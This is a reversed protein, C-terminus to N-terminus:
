ATVEQRLAAGLVSFLHAQTTLDPMQVRESFDFVDTLAFKEVPLYLATRLHETLIHCDEFPAIVLKSVNVFPFQRDFHDLSRQLELAVRDVANALRGEELEILRAHCLEGAFTFTLLAGQASVSLLALGRNEQELYTAINRQAAVRVDIAALPAGVANFDNALKGVTANKAAVAYVYAQRNPHAPDQPIELVDVTAQDVPFDIMDKLKWRVAAKQEDAPVNPKEIQVLQYANSDLVFSCRAHKLKHKNVLTKIANPQQVDTTEVAVYEVYPKNSGTKVQALLTSGNASRIATWQQQTSKKFWQM